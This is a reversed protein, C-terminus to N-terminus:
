LCSVHQRFVHAFSNILVWIMLLLNVRTWKRRSLLLSMLNRLTQLKGFVKMGDETDHFRLQHPHRYIFHMIISIFEGIKCIISIFIPHYQPINYCWIRMAIRYESGAIMVPVFHNFLFNALLAHHWWISQFDPTNYLTRSGGYAGFHSYFRTHKAIDYIYFARSIYCNSGSRVLCWLQMSCIIDFISLISHGDWTRARRDCTESRGVSRRKGLLLIGGRLKTAICDMDLTSSGRGRPGTWLSLTSDISVSFASM